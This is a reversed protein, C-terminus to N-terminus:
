HTGNTYKHLRRIGLRISRLRMFDQHLRFWDSVSCVGNSEEANVASVDALYDTM